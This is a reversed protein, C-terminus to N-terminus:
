RRPRPHCDRRESNGPRNEPHGIWQLDVDLMIDNGTVGSYLQFYNFTPNNFDALNLDRPLKGDPFVDTGPTASLRIGFYGQSFLTGDIVPAYGNIDIWDGSGPFNNVIVWVNDTAVTHEGVVFAFRGVQPAYYNNWVSGPPDLAPATTDWSFQGSVPTGVPAMPTAYVSQGCFEFNVVQASASLASLLFTACLLARHMKKLM